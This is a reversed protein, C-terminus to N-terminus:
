TLSMHHLVRYPWCGLLRGSRICVAKFATEFVSTQDLNCQELLHVHPSNMCSALNAHTSGDKRGIMWRGVEAITTAQPDLAHVLENALMMYVVADVDTNLGFYEHYNGTFSM